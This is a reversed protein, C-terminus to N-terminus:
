SIKEVGIWVEIDEDFFELNYWTADEVNTLSIVVCDDVIKVMEIPHQLNNRGSPDLMTLMVQDIAVRNDDGIDQTYALLQELNM